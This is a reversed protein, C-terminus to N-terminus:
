KDFAIHVSMFGRDEGITITKEKGVYKLPTEDAFESDNEKKTYDKLKAKIAAGIAEHNEYNNIV